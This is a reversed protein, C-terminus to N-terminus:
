GFGFQEFKRLKAEANEEEALIGRARELWVGGLRRLVIEGVNDAAEEDRDGVWEDEEEDYAKKGAELQDSGVEGEQVVDQGVGADQAARQHPPVQDRHEDVAQAAADVHAREPEDVADDAGQENEHGDGAHHHHYEVASQGEM